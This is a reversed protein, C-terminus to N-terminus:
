ERFTSVADLDCFWCFDKGQWELLEVAHFSIELCSRALEELCHDVLEFLHQCEVTVLDLLVLWWTVHVLFIFIFHRPDLLPDMMLCLLILCFVNVTCQVPTWAHPWTYITGTRKRFNFLILIKHSRFCDILSLFSKCLSLKCWHFINSFSSFVQFTLFLNFNFRWWFLDM